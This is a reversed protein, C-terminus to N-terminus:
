RKGRRKQYVYQNGYGRIALGCITVTLDHGVGASPQILGLVELLPRRVAQALADLQDLLGVLETIRYHGLKQEITLIIPNRLDIEHHRFPDLNEFGL